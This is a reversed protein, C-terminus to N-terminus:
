CWAPQLWFLRSAGGGVGERWHSLCLMDESHSRSTRDTRGKLVPAVADAGPLGRHAVQQGPPWGPAAARALSLLRPLWCPELARPPPDRHGLFLSTQRTISARVPVPSGPFTPHLLLGAGCCALPGETPPGGASAAAGPLKHQVALLSESGAGNSRLPVGGTPRTNVTPFALVM